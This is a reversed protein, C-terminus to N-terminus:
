ELKLWDHDCKEPQEIHTVNVKYHSPTLIVDLISQSKKAKRTPETVFQIRDNHIFAEVLEEQEARNKLNKNRDGGGVKGTEWNTDPLNLDGIIVNDGELTYVYDILNKM